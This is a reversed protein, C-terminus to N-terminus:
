PAVVRDPVLVEGRRRYVALLRGAATLAVPEDHDVDMPAPLPRGSTVLRADADNVEVATLARVADLLPRLAGTSVQDLAIADRVTFGANETRRLSMLHAGCGLSEGLDHVLTRVYTGTSCSLDLTALQAGREFDVLEASYVTVVRPAREVDEGRRAKKYLREGGVKVASVMPPTQKIEGTFQELARVVDAASLDSKQDTLIEGSADQTTTTIGFRAVALYRKPTQQAYSLLRTARGVGVVLVGTADPDLTGAHGVKRTHLARRVADVVDHSTMGAPKDVVLVGDM